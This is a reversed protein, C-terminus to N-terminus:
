SVIVSPPTWSVGSGFSRSARCSIFGHLFLFASDPAVEPTEPVVLGHGVSQTVVLTALVVFVLQM